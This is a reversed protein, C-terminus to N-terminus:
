KGTFQRYTERDSKLPSRHFKQRRMQRATAKDSPLEFKGRGWESRSSYPNPGKRRRKNKFKKPGVAKPQAFAKGKVLNGPLMSVLLDRYEIQDQPSVAKAMIWEGSKEDKTWGARKVAGWAIQALRSEDYDKHAAMSSNYAKRYIDRAAKPLSGKVGKPLDRDRSYPM